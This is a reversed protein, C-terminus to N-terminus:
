DIQTELAKIDIANGPVPLVADFGIHLSDPFIPM